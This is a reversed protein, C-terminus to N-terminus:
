TAAPYFELTDINILLSPDVTYQDEGLYTSHPNPGAVIAEPEFWARLLIGGSRVANLGSGFMRATERNSTWALGVAKQEWRTKNEGRFLEIAQGNYTPLLHRLLQMLVSDNGIQSRIHHGAEIWYTDFAEVTEAPYGVHNLM